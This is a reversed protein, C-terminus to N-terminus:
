GYASGTFPESKVPELSSGVIWEIRVGDDLVYVTHAWWIGERQQWDLVLGPATRPDFERRVFVHRTKPTM